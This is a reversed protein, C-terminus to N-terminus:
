TREGTAVLDLVRGLYSSRRARRFTARHWATWSRRRTDRELARDLESSMTWPIATETSTAVDIEEFCATLRPTLKRVKPNSNIEWVQLEGNLVSYDIRGYDIGALEFLRAIRAEHPNGDLYEDREAELQPHALDPTKLHWHPSFLVHRPIVKGAIRFASYKRFIGSADSTDCFEVVLLDKAYYGKLRLRRLQRTLDGPGYLLSTLNGTHEKEERVFVPYRLSGLVHFSENARVARFRNSGEAFLRQLLDFRCLVRSPDNVRRTASGAESLTQWLQRALQLQPPSLRELDTFVYTGTALSRIRRLDDYLLYRMRSNPAPGWSSVYEVTGHGAPTVLYFIV